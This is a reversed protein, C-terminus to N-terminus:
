AVGSSVKRTQSEGLEDARGRAISGEDAPIVERPNPTPDTTFAGSGINAVSAEGIDMTGRDVSALVAVLPTLLLIMVDARNLSEQAPAEGLDAM